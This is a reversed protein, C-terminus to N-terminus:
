KGFYSVPIGLMATSELLLKNVYEQWELYKIMEDSMTLPLTEISGSVIHKPLQPKDTNQKMTNRNCYGTDLPLYKCNFCCVTM